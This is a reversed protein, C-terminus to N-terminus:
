ELDDHQTMTLLVEFLRAKKIPKSVHLSCGAELATRTDETMAHATLAIIPIPQTDRQQEIQRIRRTAEYGDMIPMQIDMLILDFTSAEFAEVAQKGNEAITLRHATKKLYAQVLLVNDPADDVLLISLANPLQKSHIQNAHHSQISVTRDTKPLSATFIFTSGRDTNSNVWIQGDMREVLRRCITLGLGTGGFRRTMSIDAQNFAEFITEQKDEAVGIGTDMVEFRVMNDSQQHVSLRVQGSETFKTANSLLNLLIQRIRQSDGSVLDPVDKSVWCGIALGKDKAALRLIDVTERALKRLDLSAEELSLQGAEIKSLDLIDNILAMLANGARSLTELYRQETHNIQSEKLLDTMGIVTNMPTRIEHSMIALFKSKAENARKAETIAQKLTQESEKRQSIDRIVVQIAKQGDFTVPGGSTEVEIRSGDLKLLTQEQASQVEGLELVNQIRTKIADLIEEPVLDLVPLGVLNSPSSAGFLQVASPNAFVIQGQCHVIIAEPSLEILSRYRHESEKLAQRTKFRDTVDRAIGVVGHIGQEATIPALIAHHVRKGGREQVEGEFRNGSAVVKQHRMIWFDLLNDPQDIDNITQHRKDGWIQRSLNNQLIINQRTDVAWVSFPITNILTELQANSKAIESLANTRSHNSRTIQFITYTGFALIILGLLIGIYLFRDQQKQLATHLASEISDVALIASYFTRDFAQDQISGAYNSKPEDLRIVGLASLKDMHAMTIMVLDRLHDSELPMFTGETNAGGHLMATAYWRAEDLHQWVEEKNITDDGQMLEELWLHYLTIEQKIEMSADVLPGQHRVMQLGTFIQFQHISIVLVILLIILQIVNRQRHPQAVSDPLFSTIAM